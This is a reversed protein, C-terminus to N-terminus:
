TMRVVVVITVSVRRGVQFGDEWYREKKAIKAADAFRQSGDHSASAAHGNAWGDDNGDANRITTSPLGSARGAPLWPTAASTNANWLGHRSPTATDRRRWVSWGTYAPLRAHGNATSSVDAHKASRIRSAATATACTCRCIPRSTPYTCTRRPALQM